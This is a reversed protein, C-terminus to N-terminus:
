FEEFLRYYEELGMVNRVQGAKSGHKKNKTKKLSYFCVMIVKPVMGDPLNM